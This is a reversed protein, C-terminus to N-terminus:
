LPLMAERVFKLLEDYGGLFQRLTKRTAGYTVFGAQSLGKEDYARLFDDFQTSLADIIQPDVDDHIRSKVAVGSQNFVSQWNPPITVVLEGGIFESWHHHSRMAAALLKSRYGRQQFLKYAKRMVATSAHRIHEPDIPINREKALDRLHDDLRGVMITVWPTIRSTDLGAKQARDLGREMAEAVALAQPLTFLVTANIVVGRATLTEIAHLGSAVAPIKIAINDRLRFLRTAHDIMQEPSPFFRPNVQVSMRGRRGQYRDFVPLLLDAGEVAAQEVIRWAIQEETETPFATVLAQVAKLWREREAQIAQLVIVPNSTAGTAGHEIATKLSTLECSDNWFETPTELTMQHLLSKATM